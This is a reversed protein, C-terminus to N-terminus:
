ADLGLVLVIQEINHLSGVFGVVHPLNSESMRRWGVWERLWMPILSMQM